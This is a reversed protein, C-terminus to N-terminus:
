PGAGGIVANQGHIPFCSIFHKWQGPRCCIVCRMRVKWACCACMALDHRSKARVASEVLCASSESFIRRRCESHWRAFSRATVAASISTCRHRADSSKELDLRHTLSDLEILQSADCISRGLSSSNRRTRLCFSRRRKSSALGLVNM